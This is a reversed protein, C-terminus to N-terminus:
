KAESSSFAKGFATFEDLEILHQKFKRHFSQENTSKKSEDVEIGDKELLFRKFERHSFDGM